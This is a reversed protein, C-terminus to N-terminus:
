KNLSAETSLSYCQFLEVVKKTHRKASSRFLNMISFASDLVAPRADRQNTDAFRYSQAYEPEVGISTSGISQRQVTIGAQVEHMATPEGANHKGGTM